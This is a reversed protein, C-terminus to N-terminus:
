QLSAYEENSNLIYKIGPMQKVEQLLSDAGVPILFRMTLTSGGQITVNGLDSNFFEYSDHFSAGLAKFSSDFVFTISENTKETSVNAGAFSQQREYVKDFREQQAPVDIYETYVVFKKIQVDTRPAITYRVEWFSDSGVQVPPDMQISKEVTMVPATPTPVPAPISSPETTPMSTPELASSPIAEVVPATGASLGVQCGTLTLCLVFFIIIVKM